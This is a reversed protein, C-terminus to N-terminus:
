IGMREDDADDDISFEAGWQSLFGKAEKWVDDDNCELM